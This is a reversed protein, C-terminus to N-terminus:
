LAVTQQRDKAQPLQIVKGTKAGCCYAVPFKELSMSISWHSNDGSCTVWEFSKGRVLTFKQSERWKRDQHCHDVYGNFLPARGLPSVSLSLM